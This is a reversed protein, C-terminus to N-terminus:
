DSQSFRSLFDDLGALSDNHTQRYLHELRKRCTDSFQTGQILSGRAFSEMALDVQQQQWHTMGLFYYSEAQREKASDDAQISAKFEAKAKDWSKSEYASRGIILHAISKEKRVWNPDADTGKLAELLQRAYDAAQNWSKQAYNYRMLAPLLDLCESPKADACAKEAWSVFKEDPGVQQYSRALIFDLQPAEPNKSYTKEGYKVAKQHQKTYHASWTTLYLVEWGEGDIENLYKEGLSLAKEHDGSNQADAIAKRYAQVVYKTLVSDPNAKVFAMMEDPGAKVAKEYAEYEEATYTPAEEEEQALSFGTMLFLVILLPVWKRASVRM